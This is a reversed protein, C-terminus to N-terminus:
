YVDTVVRVCGGMLKFHVFAGPFQEVLHTIDDPDFVVRNAGFLGVDTPGPAVDQEVIFTVGPLHSSWLDCGKEGM